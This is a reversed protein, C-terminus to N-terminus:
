QRTNGAKYNLGTYANLIIKWNNLKSRNSLITFAIIRSYITIKSILHILCLSFYSVNKYYYCMKGRFYQETQYNKLTFSSGEKHQIGAQPISKIRFGTKSVRFALDTEEFFLFFSPDFYGIKEIINKPIMLDAGTIYAVELPKDTHNFYANKKYVFREPFASFLDNLEWLVSPLFRRYSYAPSMNIDYLNGGVIATDTHQDLYDSLIKVANNILITDPNLLFINRGKASKIGENNARGFGINEQLSLFRVRSGFKESVIQQSNDQSANDVVIIEYDVAETHTLVSEVAECLQKSTNYNVIIVSVDM